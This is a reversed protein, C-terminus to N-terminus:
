GIYLFISQIIFINKFKCLINFKQQIPFIVIYVALLNYTYEIEIYKIYISRIEADSDHLKGDNNKTNIDAGHEILLKVLESYDFYVAFM